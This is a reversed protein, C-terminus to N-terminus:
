PAVHIAMVPVIVSGFYGVAQAVAPRRHDGDVLASAVGERRGEIWTQEILAHQDHPM